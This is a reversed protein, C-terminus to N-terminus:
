ESVQNKNARGGPSVSITNNIDSFVKDFMPETLRGTFTNQQSPHYSGFLWRPVRGRSGASLQVRDGHSFTPKPRPIKMWELSSELNLIAKWALGGLALLVQPRALRITELLFPRCNLLEEGTPKNLPPACRCVNTISCNVLCLGDERNESTPQNAFGSRCLARYLWDGSRDGTFMRGTRNAGHAGPALGIVLLSVNPRGFDPVPRGWYEQDLYAKRKEKAVRRTHEFLRSCQRCDIVSSQLAKWQGVVTRKKPQTKDM